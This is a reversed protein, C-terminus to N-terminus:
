KLIVHEVPLGFNDEFWELFVSVWKDGFLDNLRDVVWSQIILTNKKNDGYIGEDGLFTYAGTDNIDFDIWGQREIANKYNQVHNWEYDPEYHSTLYEYIFKELRSESIIYRAGM